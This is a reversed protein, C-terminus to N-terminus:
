APGPSSTPTAGGRADNVLGCWARFSFYDGVYWGAGSFGGMQRNLGALEPVPPASAQEEGLYELFLALDVRAIHEGVPDNGCWHHVRVLGYTRGDGALEIGRKTAEALAVSAGPLSRMGRPMVSRGDALHLGTPTWGTVEVPSALTEIMREKRAYAILALGMGCVAVMGMLKAVTIRPARMM